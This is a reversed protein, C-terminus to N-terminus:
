TGCNICDGEFSTGTDGVVKNIDVARSRAYYLTPLGGAFAHYHVAHLYPISANANFFLNLSQGQDLSPQRAIALNVLVLQNLEYATKFVEKAEPPFIDLHQISGGTTIISSVLEDTLDIKAESCYKVLEPSVLRYNGNSTSHIYANAVRPEIGPSIYGSLTSNTATPAVARTYSLRRADPYGVSDPCPGRLQTLYLNAADTKEKLHTFLKNNFGQALFSNAPILHNQLYTFFGMVGLGVDRSMKASYIANEFGKMGTAKDIFLTLINDLAELIDQIFLESSSWEDFLAANVSALCCVATRRMADGDHTGTPLLIETCLQSQEISMGKDRHWDRLGAQAAPLSMGFPQGNGTGVRKQIWEVWVTMSNLTSVIAGTNPCYLNYDAQTELATFFEQTFMPCLFSDAAKRGPDGSHRDSSALFEMIDPHDVRLYMAASSRRTIAQKYALMEANLLHAFPIVGPAHGPIGKVAAGTGRIRSLNFGIGAGNLALAGAEYMADLIGDKSDDCNIVNCSIPLGHGEGYPWNALVPTAWGIWKKSSYQYLREAHEPNTSIAESVKRYMDDMSEYKKDKNITGDFTEQVMKVVDNNM